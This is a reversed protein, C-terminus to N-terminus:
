LLRICGRGRRRRRVCMCSISRSATGPSVCRAARNWCSVWPLDSLSHNQTGLLAMDPTHSYSPQPPSTYTPPASPSPPKYHSPSSPKHHGNPPAPHHRYHHQSPAMNTDSNSFPDDGDAHINLTQLQSILIAAPPFKARRKTKTQTPFPKLSPTYLITSM